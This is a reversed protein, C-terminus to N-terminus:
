KRGKLIDIEEKLEKIASILIPILKIYDVGKYEEEFIPHVINPM